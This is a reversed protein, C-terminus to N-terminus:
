LNLKNTFKALYEFPPIFHPTQKAKIKKSMREIDGEVVTFFADSKKIYSLFTPKSVRNASNSVNSHILEDYLQHIKQPTPDNCKSKAEVIQEILKDREKQLNTLENRINSNQINM